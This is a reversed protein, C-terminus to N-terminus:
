VSCKRWWKVEPYVGGGFLCIDSINKMIVAVSRGINLAQIHNLEELGSILRFM